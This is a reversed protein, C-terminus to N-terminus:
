QKIYNYLILSDQYDAYATGEAAALDNDAQYIQDTSRHERLATLYANKYHNMNRLDRQFGAWWADELAKTDAKLQDDNNRLLGDMDNLDEGERYSFFRLYTLDLQYRIAQAQHQPDHPLNLLDQQISDIEDLTDALNAAIAGRAYQLNARLTQGDPDACPGPDAGSCFPDPETQGKLGKYDHVFGKGSQILAHWVGSSDPLLRPECEEVRPRFRVSVHSM